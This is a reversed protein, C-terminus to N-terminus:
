GRKQGLKAAKALESRYKSYDEAVLPFDKPLAFAQRYSVPSLGHASLLHRKLIKLRCGCVLCTILGPDRNIATSVAKTPNIAISTYHKSLDCFSRGVEGIMVPLLEPKIVNSAVYANIVQATARLFESKNMHKM